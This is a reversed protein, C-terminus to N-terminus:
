GTEGGKRGGAGELGPRRGARSACVCPWWLCGHTHEARGRGGYLRVGAPIRGEDGYIASDRGDVAAQGLAVGGALAAPARRRVGHHSHNSSTQVLHTETEGATPILRQRLPLTSHQQHTLREILRYSIVGSDAHVAV